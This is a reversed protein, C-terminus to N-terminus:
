KANIEDNGNCQQIDMATPTPLMGLESLGAGIEDTRHTKPVLQFLLRSFKTGKLKWTLACRRSYWDATLIQSVLYM